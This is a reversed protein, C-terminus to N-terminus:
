VVQKKFSKFDIWQQTRKQEKSLQHNFAGQEMAEDFTQNDILCDNSIQYDRNVKEETDFIRMMSTKFSTRWEDRTYRSNIRM